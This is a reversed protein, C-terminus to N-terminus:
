VCNVFQFTRYNLFFFFLESYEETLRKLPLFSLHRNWTGLHCLLKLSRKLLVPPVFFAIHRQFQHSQDRKFARSTSRLRKLVKKCSEEGTGITCAGNLWEELLDRQQETGHKGATKLGENQQPSNEGYALYRSSWQKPNPTRQARNGLSSKFIYSFLFPEEREASAWPLM